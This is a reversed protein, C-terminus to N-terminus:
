KMKIESKLLEQKLQDLSKFVIGNLGLEKAKLVNNEGDDIFISEEPKVGLKELTIDFMEKTPKKMGLEWSFSVVDFMDRIGWKDLIMAEFVTTNSIFGLKYNKKLEGLLKKMGDFMTAEELGEKFLDVVYKINEQNKEINFEKLFNTAMNEESEWKKLQVASEYLHMFDPTKQIDFKDQLSKSIGVNKTGLTEWLDFIIAKIM